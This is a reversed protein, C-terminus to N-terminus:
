FHDSVYMKGVWKEAIPGYHMKYKIITKRLTLYM